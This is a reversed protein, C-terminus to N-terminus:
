KDAALGALYSEVFDRAEDSLGIFQCGVRTAETGDASPVVKQYQVMMDVAIKGVGPLAISCDCLVEGQDLKVESGCNVVGVGGPSLDVVEAEAEMFGLNLTIKLAPGAPIKNRGARRRQFRWMFAPIAVGVVAVGDLDVVSCHGAPFQIRADELACCLMTREAQPTDLADRWERSCMLLLTGSNDDIYVVSTGAIPGAGAVSVSLTIQQDSIDDLISRIESRSRVLFEAGAVAPSLASARQTKMILATEM